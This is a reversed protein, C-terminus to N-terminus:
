ALWPLLTVTRARFQRAKSIGLGSPRDRYPSMTYMPTCITHTGSYRPYIYSLALLGPFFICLLACLICMRTDRPEELCMTLIVHVHLGRIGALYHVWAPLMITGGSDYTCTCVLRSHLTYIHISIRLNIRRKCHTGHTPRLLERPQQM